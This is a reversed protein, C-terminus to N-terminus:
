ECELENEGGGGVGWGVGVGGRELWELLTASLFVRKLGTTTYVTCSVEM